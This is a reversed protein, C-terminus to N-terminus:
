GGGGYGGDGSPPHALLSSSSVLGPAMRGSKTRLLREGAVIWASARSAVPSCGRKTAERKTAEQALLHIACLSLISLGFWSGHTWVQDVVDAEWACDVPQRGLSRSLVWKRACM